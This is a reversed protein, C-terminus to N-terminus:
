ALLKVDMLVSNPESEATLIVTEWEHCRTLAVSRPRLTVDTALKGLLRGLLSVLKQPLALQQPVVSWLVAGSHLRRAAAAVLGAVAAASLRRRGDPPSRVLRPTPTPLAARRAAFCRYSSLM